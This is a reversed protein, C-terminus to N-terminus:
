SDLTSRYLNVASFVLFVFGMVMVSASSFVVYHCPGPNDCAGAIYFKSGTIVITMTLPCAPSCGAPAKIGQLENINMELTGLM